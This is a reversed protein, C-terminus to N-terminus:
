HISGIVHPFNWRQSFGEAREEFKEKNPAPLVREHLVDWIAKLTERIIKNATSEGVRFSVATRCMSSGSALYSLTLALREEATITIRPGEKKSILPRVMELLYDFSTPSLRYLKRFQEVDENRTKIFITFYESEKRRLENNHQPMLHPRVWWRPSRRKKLLNNNRLLNCKIQLRNVLDLKLLGILVKSRTM